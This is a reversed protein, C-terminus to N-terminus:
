QAAVHVRLREAVYGIQEDAIEPFMPLSLLRPAMSEAVPFDGRLYGFHAYVDDSLFGAGTAMPSQAPAVSWLKSGDILSLAAVTSTTYHDGTADSWRDNSTCLLRGAAIAAEGRIGDAGAAVQTHWVPAGTARDFVWYTGRRQLGAHGAHGAHGAASGQGAPDHASTEADADGRVDFGAPRGRRTRAAGDL